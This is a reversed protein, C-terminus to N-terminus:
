RPMTYIVYYGRVYLIYLILSFLGPLILLGTKVAIGFDQKIIILPLMFILLAAPFLMSASNSLVLSGVSMLALLWWCSLDNHNKLLKIYVLFVLPIVFSGLLTKGEFTRTVFFEQATYITSYFFSTLGAFFIFSGTKKLDDKFLLRGMRYMVINVLIVVVYEMVTKTWILPHIGTLYCMVADNIAYNAFFYRMEFHDQWMGTYPNYINITDTTLSTNATGVYFAADLTFQYSNVIIFAEIAVFILCFLVFLPKSKAFAISEMILCRWKRHNLILSVIVVAAIVGGWIYALLHLPKLKLTMPICVFEFLTYYLFFGMIVSLTASFRHEKFCGTILSGFAFYIILNIIVALFGYFTLVM